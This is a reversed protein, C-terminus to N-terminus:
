ELMWEVYRRRQLHDAPKLLQTLQVKNYSHLDRDLHLIRWLTGYSSRLSISVNPDESVNESVVAINRASRAFRHHM